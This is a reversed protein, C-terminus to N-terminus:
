CGDFSLIVYFYNQQTTHFDCMMGAQIQSRFKYRIYNTYSCYKDCVCVCM